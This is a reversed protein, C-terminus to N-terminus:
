DGPRDVHSSTEVVPLGTESGGDESGEDTSTADAEDREDAEDASAETAAEPEAPPEAAAEAEAQAETAADPETAVEAAAAVDASAGPEAVAAFDTEAAAETAPEAEAAEEALKAELEALLNIAPEYDPDYELLQRLVNRGKKPQKLSILCRALGQGSKFFPENGPLSSPLRGDFDEPLVDLACEYGFGFHGRALSVNNEELALQGLLFHAAVFGTCDSVLYLLEDRAIEYEASEIM